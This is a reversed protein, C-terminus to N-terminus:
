YRDLQDRLRWLHRRLAQRGQRRDPRPRRRHRRGLAQLHPQGRGARRVVAPTGQTLLLM